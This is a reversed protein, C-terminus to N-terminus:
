IRRRGAGRWAAPARVAPPQTAETTRGHLVLALAGLVDPELSRLDAPVLERSTKASM